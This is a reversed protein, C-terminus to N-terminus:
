QIFPRLCKMAKVIEGVLGKGQSIADDREIYKTICLRPNRVKPHVLLQQLYDLGESDILYEIGHRVVEKADKGRRNEVVEVAYHPSLELLEDKLGERNSKIDELLRTIRPEERVEAYILFEYPWLQIVFYADNKQPKGQRLIAWCGQGWKKDCDVKPKARLKAEKTCAEALSKMTSTVLEKAADDTKLGLVADFHYERLGTFGQKTM